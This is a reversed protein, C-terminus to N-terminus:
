EYRLAVMPDVRTARRAPILCAGLAVAALLRAVLAFTIPDSPKVEFLLSSLLRSAALAGALGTALGALIPASARAMTLGLIDQRQAGLALRLGIEPTREAVAYSVVGYVGIVALALAVGAFLLLLVAQFRRQAVSASVVEQLTAVRTVPQDKDIAWVQRQVERVIALPAGATRVAFDALPIPYLSTQAAPFFVQPHVPETQSQLHVEGVVGVITELDRADGRRIRHGIADGNPFLKRALLQNVIAVLSAGEKDAATFARGELVPIGLTEFYRPSVPEFDAKRGHPDEPTQYDSGWGGRMPGCFTFGVSQVGPLRSVRQDLDQFFALRHAGDPYRLDPLNVRMILVRDPQFGLEVHTVRLFSKWLLGGGALLMMALAVEAAMLVSRWRMVARSGTSREGSKLAANPLIGSAQWAPLVGFLFVTLSALLGTFGLVRGSWVAADLRPINKPALSVLLDRTWVGLLLGLACGLAALVASEVLLERVIRARGAGLALRIVIERGRGASRALLLNAVNACAILLVLGVAGLLVLMATRVRRVLEAGLPAVGLAVKGNTKPYAKALRAAITQMESQAQALTVGPKLRAIAADYHSSRDYLIDPPWCDPVVFMTPQRTEGPSRFGAPLVGVVQYAEGDLTISRGIIGRDGGLRQQWMEHSIIVVRPAGYRDEEPLFTRGLAPQVGLIGLFNYGAQVGFIREPAGAGTLNMGPTGWHAIGTFVHNQNYDPMNAPSVGDRDDPDNPQHEFFSVLQEPHPYPLPRLLVADIVSFIASNAGIGLALTIVAVLTFAPTRALLRAAHRLQQM